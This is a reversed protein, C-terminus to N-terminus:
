TYANSALSVPSLRQAHLVGLWNSHRSLWGLIGLMGAM